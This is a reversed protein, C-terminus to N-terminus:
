NISKESKTKGNSEGTYNRRIQVHFHPGTGHPKYVILQYQGNATAGLTPYKKRFYACFEAILSDPLDKVRVDFARGGRHTSSVRKLERDEAVTTFTETLTLEIGYKEQAWADMEIALEQTRPWMLNFRQAAKESSFKMPPSGIGSCGSVYIFWNGM